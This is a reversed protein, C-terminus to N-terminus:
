PSPARGLALTKIVDMMFSRRLGLERAPKGAPGRPFLGPASASFLRRSDPPGSPRGRTRAGPGLESLGPAKPGSLFRAYDGHHDEGVIGTGTRCLRTSPRVIACISFPIRRSLDTLTHSSVVREGNWLCVASGPRGLPPSPGRGPRLALKQSICHCLEKSFGVGREIVAWCGRCTFAGCSSPDESWPGLEFNRGGEVAAALLL